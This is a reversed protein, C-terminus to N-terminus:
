VGSGVCLRRVAHPLVQHHNHANPRHHFTKVHSPLIEFVVVIPVGERYRSSCQEGILAGTRDLM